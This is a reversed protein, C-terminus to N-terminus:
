IDQVPTIEDVVMVGVRREGGLYLHGGKAVFVMHGTYAFGCVWGM